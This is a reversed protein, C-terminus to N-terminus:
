EVVIKLRCMTIDLLTSLNEFITFSLLRSFFFFTLLKDCCEPLYQSFDHFVDTLIAIGRGFDM